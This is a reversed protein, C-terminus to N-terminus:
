GGHCCGRMNSSSPNSCVTRTEYRNSHYFLGVLLKSFFSLSSPKNPKHKWTVTLWKLSTPALVWTPKLNEIYGFIVKFAQDEQRQRWLATKSGGHRAWSSREYKTPSCGDGFAVQYVVELRKPHFGHLDPWSPFRSKHEQEEEFATLCILITYIPSTLLSLHAAVRGEAWWLSGACEWASGM